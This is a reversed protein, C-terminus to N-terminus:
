PIVVNNNRHKRYIITPVSTTFDLLNYLVHNISVYDVVVTVMTNVHEVLIPSNIGIQNLVTRIALEIAKNRVM